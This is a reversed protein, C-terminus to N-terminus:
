FLKSVIGKFMMFLLFNQFISKVWDKKISHNKRQGGQGKDAAGGKLAGRPGQSSVGKWLGGQGIARVGPGGGKTVM